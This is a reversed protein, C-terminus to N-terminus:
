LQKNEWILSGDLKTIRILYKYGWYFPQDIGAYMQINGMVQAIRGPFADDKGVTVMTGDVEIGKYHAIKDCVADRGADDMKIFQKTYIRAM